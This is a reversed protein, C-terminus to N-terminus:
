FEAKKKKKYSFSMKNKIYIYGILFSVQIFTCYFVQQVLKILMKVIM